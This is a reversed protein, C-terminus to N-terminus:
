EKNANFKESNIKKYEEYSHNLDLIYPTHTKLEIQEKNPIKMYDGFIIKLYTDYDEPIPLSIDEFKVIKPKGLVKKDYVSISIGDGDFISILEDCSDCSYKVCRKTCYNLIKKRGFIKLIILFISHLFKNNIVNRNASLTFARNIELIKRKIKNKPYGVLPFVDIYVGNVIDEDKNSEEILTTKINRIKSFSLTYNPETEPTQVFYKKKDLEKKCVDLFKQYQDYKLIIDFDDDWPIFGKHRVAGLCSGYAVYYEINHRKCLKDIDKIMDLICLQLDRKYDKM